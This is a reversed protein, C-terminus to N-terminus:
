PRWFDADGILFGLQTEGVLYASIRNAKIEGCRFSCKFLNLVAVFTRGRVREAHTVTTIRVVRAAERTPDCFPKEDM